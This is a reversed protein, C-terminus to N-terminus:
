SIIKYIFQMSTLHDNTRLFVKLRIRSTIHIVDDNLGSRQDNRLRIFIYRQLRRCLYYANAKYKGKEKEDKGKNDFFGTTLAKRKLLYARRKPKTTVSGLSESLFSFVIQCIKYERICKM